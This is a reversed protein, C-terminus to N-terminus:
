SKANVIHLHIEIYFFACFYGSPLLLFIGSFIHMYLDIPITFNRDSTTTVSPSPCCETFTNCKFHGKFSFSRFRLFYLIFTLSPLSYQLLSFMCQIAQTNISGWLINTSIRVGLTHYHSTPSKYIRLDHPHLRKPNTARDFIGWLALKGRGGHSSATLLAWRKRM